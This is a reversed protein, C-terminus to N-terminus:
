EMDSSDEQKIHMDTFEMLNVEDSESETKVKRNLYDDVAQGIHHNEERYQM